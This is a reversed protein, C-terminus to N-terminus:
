IFCMQMRSPNTAAAPQLNWFLVSTKTGVAGALTLPTAPVVAGSGVDGGELVEGPLKPPVHAEDVIAPRGIPLQELRFHIM